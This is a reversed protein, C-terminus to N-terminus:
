RVPIAPQGPPTLYDALNWGLQSWWSGQVKFRMRGDDGGLQALAVRALVTSDRTGAGTPLTPQPVWTGNQYRSVYIQQSANTFGVYYDAGMGPDMSLDGTTGLDDIDIYFDALLEQSQFDASIFTAEFRVTDRSVTIRTQTLDAYNIADGVPDTAGGTLSPDSPESSGCAAGLAALVGLTVLLLPTRPVLLELNLPRLPGM